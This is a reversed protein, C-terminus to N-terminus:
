AAREAMERQKDAVKQIAVARAAGFAQKAAGEPNGTNWQHLIADAIKMTLDDMFTNDARLKPDKTMAYALQQSMIGLKGAAGQRNVEDTLEVIRAHGAKNGLDQIGEERAIQQVWDQADKTQTPYHKWGNGNAIEEPNDITVAM